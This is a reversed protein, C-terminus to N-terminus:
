YWTAVGGHHSCTGRRSHSFSYTGDKCRATAGSPKSPSKTPSHVRKGDSNIYYDDNFLNRDERTNDFQQKEKTKDLEEKKTQETDISEQFSHYNEEQTQNSNQNKADLDNGSDSNNSVCGTLILLPLLFVILKSRLIFNM